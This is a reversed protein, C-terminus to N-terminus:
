MEYLFFHVGCLQKKACIIEKETINHNEPYERQMTYRSMNLM